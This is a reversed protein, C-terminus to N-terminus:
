SKLGQIKQIISEVLIVISVKRDSIETAEFNQGWWKEDM